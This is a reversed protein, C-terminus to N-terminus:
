DQLSIDGRPEIVEGQIRLIATQRNGANSQITVTRSIRHPQPMIRFQVEVYGSDRPAIPAQSYGSVTTGCCARVNSLVLPQNGRNYIKFNVKGDPIKDASIEGYNHTERDFAIYAGQHNQSHLSEMAFLAILAILLVRM